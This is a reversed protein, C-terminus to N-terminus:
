SAGLIFILIFLILLLMTGIATDHKQLFQGLGPVDPELQERDKPWQRGHYPLSKAEVHEREQQEAEALAKERQEVELREKERHTAELREKERQQQARIVHEREQQEAEALAKERQEVELREKERHTAELREKERQQ